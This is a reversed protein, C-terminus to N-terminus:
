GPMGGQTLLWWFFIYMEMVYWIGFAALSMVHTTTRYYVSSLITMPFLVVVTVWLWPAPTPLPLLVTLPGLLTSAAAFFSVDMGFRFVLLFMITSAVLGMLMGYQIARKRQADTANM